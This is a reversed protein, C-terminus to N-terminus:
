KNDCATAEPLSLASAAEFHTVDGAHIRKQLNELSAVRRVSPSRLAMAASPVPIAEDPLSCNTWDDEVLAAAAAASAADSVGSSVPMSSAPMESTTFLQLGIGTVRRVAEEAINVKRRMANMDDQLNGYETTSQKYKQTMDSLRKQLSANESRLQSVQSELDNLHAQKRKRSRRASERNSLMRRTRKANVPDTDEELDGDDDSQEKSTGSNAPKGQDDDEHIANSNTVRTSGYGNFSDQSVLQSTDSAQLNLYGLSSEQLKAEMSKAVAACYLDLKTKLVAAYAGPDGGGGGGGVGAGGRKM